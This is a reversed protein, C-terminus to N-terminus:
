RVTYSSAWDEIQFPVQQNVGDITENIHIAKVPVPPIPITQTTVQLNQGLWIMTGNQLLEVAVTAAPNQLSLFLDQDSEPRLLAADVQWSNQVFQRRCRQRFRITFTTSGAAIYSNISMNNWGSVLASCLPQWSGDYWADVALNSSGMTGGYICLAPNLLATYNLNTWQEELSLGYVPSSPAYRALDLSITFRSSVSATVTLCLQWSGIDTELTADANASITQQETANTTGLTGTM